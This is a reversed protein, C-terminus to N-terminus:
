VKAAEGASGPSSGNHNLELVVQPLVLTGANGKERKETRILWVNDVIHAWNMTLVKDRRQATLLLVKLLAGYAGLEDAVKWLVRIEDDDLIRSRRSDAGNAALPKLRKVAEETLRKRM